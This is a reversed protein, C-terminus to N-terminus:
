ATLTCSSMCELTRITYVIRTATHETLTQEARPRRPLCCPAATTRPYSCTGAHRCAAARAARTGALSSFASAPPKPHAADRATAARWPTCEATGRPLALRCRCTPRSVSAPCMCTSRCKIHWDNSVRMDLDRQRSGLIGKAVNGQWGGGRRRPATAPWPAQEVHWFQASGCGIAHMHVICTRRPACQSAM